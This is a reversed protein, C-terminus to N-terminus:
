YVMKGDFNIVTEPDVADCCKNNPSTYNAWPSGVDLTSTLWDFRSSPECSLAVNILLM